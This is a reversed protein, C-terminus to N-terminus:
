HLTAHHKEVLAEVLSMEDEPLNLTVDYRHSANMEDQLQEFELLKDAIRQARETKDIHKDGVLVNIEKILSSLEYNLM